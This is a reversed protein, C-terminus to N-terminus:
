CVGRKDWSPPHGLVCPPVNIAESAEAEEEEEVDSESGSISSRAYVMSLKRPASSAPTLLEPTFSVKKAKKPPPSPSTSPSSIKRRNNPSPTQSPHPSSPASTKPSSPVSTKPSVPASTKPSSPVPAPTSPPSAMPSAYTPPTLAQEETVVEVEKVITTGQEVVLTTETVEADDSQVVQVTEQEETITVDANEFGERQEPLQTVPAEPLQYDAEADSDEIIAASKFEKSSTKADDVEATAKRKEVKKATLEGKKATSTKKKVVKKVVPKDESDSASEVAAQQLAEKEAAAQAEVEAAEAMSSLLKREETTLQKSAARKKTPKPTEVPVTQSGDLESKKWTSMMYRNEPEKCMKKERVGYSASAALRDEVVKKLARAAAEDEMKIAWAEKMYATMRDRMMEEPTVKAKHWAQLLLRLEREVRNNDVDSPVYMHAARTGANDSSKFPEKGGWRRPQAFYERGKPDLYELRSVAKQNDKHNEIVRQALNKIKSVPDVACCGSVKDDNLAREHEVRAEEPDEFRDYKDEIDFRWTGKRNEVDTIDLSLTMHQHSKECLSVSTKEFTPDIHRACKRRYTCENCVHIMDSVHYPVGAVAKTFTAPPKYYVPEDTYNPRGNIDDLVNRAREREWHDREYLPGQRSGLKALIKQVNALEEASMGATKLRNIAAEEDFTEGGKKAEGLLGQLYTGHSEPQQAPTSSSSSPPSPTTAIDAIGRMKNLHFAKGTTGKNKKALARVNDPHM